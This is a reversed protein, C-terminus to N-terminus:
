VGPHHTTRRPLPPLQLWVACLRRFRLGSEATRGSGGFVTGFGSNTIDVKRGDKVEFSTIDFPCRALGMQRCKEENIEASTPVQRYRDPDFADPEQWLERSLSTSTHPTILYSHREFSLGLRRHPSEGYASNRADDIASISGSNPSITRFLEMVFLELPTYPAGKANDYDGSMTQRFSSRVAKDGGDESLRSMIGYLTNGWQSLAVFNHFCEFIIDKQSFHAGDGANKLWYWALTKEPEALRGAAIDAVREDIWGRLFDLRKRVAMYNEYVIPQLPNRYALVTNFAEGIERIETPIAQGKVGLHLDWYIDFYYDLYHRMFPINSFKPDLLADFFSVVKAKYMPNYLDPTMASFYIRKRLNNDGRNELGQLFVTSGEEPMPRWESYILGWLDPPLANEKSLILDILPLM